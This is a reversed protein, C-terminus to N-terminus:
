PRHQLHGHQPVHARRRPARLAEGVGSAALARRRVRRLRAARLADDGLARSAAVVRACDAASVSYLACFDRARREDDGGWPLHLWRREGAALTVDFELMGAAAAPVLLALAAHM